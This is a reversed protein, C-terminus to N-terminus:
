ASSARSPASTASILPVSPLSSLRRAAMPLCGVEPEPSTEARASSGSSLEGPNFAYQGHQALNRAYVQHIWPDDFPFIWEGLYLRTVLPYLVFVLGCLLLLVVGRKWPLFGTHRQGGQETTWVM